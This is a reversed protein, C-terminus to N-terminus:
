TNAGLQSSVASSGRKCQSPSRVPTPDALGNGGRLPSAHTLLDGYPQGDVALGAVDLDLRSHQEHMRQAVLEAQGPRVDTTVRGVAAGAGDMEVAVRHLRARDERDLGIATLDRRDLPESAGVRQVRDLLAEPLVVAELAAVARRPHDHGRRVQQLAIGVGALVLHAHRELAVEAAAGAVV